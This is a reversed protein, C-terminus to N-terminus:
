KFTAHWPFGYKLSLSCVAYVHIQTNICTVGIFIGPRCKYQFSFKNLIELELDTLVYM